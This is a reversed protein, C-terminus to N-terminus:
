SKSFSTANAASEVLRTSNILFGPNAYTLVLIVDNGEWGYVAQSWATSNVYEDYTYNLGNVSGSNTYTLNMAYMFWPSLTATGILNSMHSANNKVTIVVYFMSAYTSTDSSNALTIWGSTINNKLQPVLRELLSANIVSNNNFLSVVTYRSLPAGLLASARSSNMYIATSNIQLNETAINSKTLNLHVHNSFFLFWVGIAIIALVIIMGIITGIDKGDSAYQNSQSDNSSPQISSGQGMTNQTM